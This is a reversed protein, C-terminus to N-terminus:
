TLNEKRQFPNTKDVIWRFTTTVGSHLDTRPMSYLQRARREASSKSAYSKISVGSGYKEGNQFVEFWIKWPKLSPKSVSSDISCVDM